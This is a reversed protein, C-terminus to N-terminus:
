PLFTGSGEASGYAPFSFSSYQQLFVSDMDFHSCDRFTKEPFILNLFRIKKKEKRSQKKTVRAKKVLLWDLASIHYYVATVLSSQLEM